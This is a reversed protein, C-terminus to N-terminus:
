ERFVKKWERVKDKGYAEDWARLILDLPVDAFTGHYRVYEVFKRGEDDHHPFIADQRGDFEVIPYGHQQCLEKEFSPTVQVWRNGLFLEVYGHFVFLNTGMMEVLQQSAKYNRIDAFVLRSPIGIARALAILLVSKQVCYGRGRRLTTTAKYHEILFFPSYPNYKITDRVFYFLRRAREHVDPAGEVTRNALDRIQHNDCEIAETPQLFLEMERM